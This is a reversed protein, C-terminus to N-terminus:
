FNLRAGLQIDRSANAQSTVTGFTSPTSTNVAPAAPIFSNTINYASVDLQLAMNEHLVINRKLSLDSDFIAPGRLGYPRTRGVSGITYQPYLRSVAPNSNAGVSPDVFANIDVYHTTSATAATMNQGYSGNLRANGVYGPNYNPMCQGGGPTVCGSSVIALPVGSSYTYIGSIQYDSILARVVRNESAFRQGRGFPLKVVATSNIVNTADSLGRSREVRSNLYGNRFTGNNDIEAAWTYNVMFDVNHAMRQKLVVQLSNYNSNSINDYTDAVGSYQPFPVLAQALTGSFSPYPLKINPFTQQATALVAPTLTAGLQSGLVYYMPDLQNNYYGRGGGAAVPIFHGQSGVYNLQMAMDRTFQQEVGFNYM